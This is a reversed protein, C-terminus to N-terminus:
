CGFDETQDTDPIPLPPKDSHGDENEKKAPASNKLWSRYAGYGGQLTYANTYGLERLVVLDHIARHQSRCILLLIKGSAPRPLLDIHQLVKGFPINISGAIHSVVFEEPARVDLLFYKGLGPGKRYGEEFAAVPIRHRDEPLTQLYDKGAQAIIARDYKSWLEKYEPDQILTQKVLRAAQNFKGDAFFMDGRAKIAAIKQPVAVTTERKGASILSEIKKSCSGDAKEHKRPNQQRSLYNSYGGRLTFANTYGLERLIVLIHNARHQTRCVILLRKGTQPQPLQNLHGLVQRLPINIADALHGAAFEEPQRVDLIFSDKNENQLDDAFCSQDIRYRNEPIRLLYDNGAKALVARNYFDWFEPSSSAPLSGRLIDIVGAYDSHNFALDAEKLTQVINTEQDASPPSASWAEGGNLSLVSLLLMTLLTSLRKMINM